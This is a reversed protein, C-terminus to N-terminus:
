NSKELVEGDNQKTVPTNNKNEPTPLSVQDRELDECPQPNKEQTDKAQTKKEIINTSEAKDLSDETPNNEQPDSPPDVAVPNNELIKPELVLIENESKPKKLDEEDIELCEPKRKLSPTELNESEM